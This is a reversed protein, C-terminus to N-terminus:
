TWISSNGACRAVKTAEADTQWILYQREAEHSTRRNALEDQWIAFWEELFTRAVRLEGGVPGTLLDTLKQREEATLKEPQHLFLTRVATLRRSCSPGRGLGEV